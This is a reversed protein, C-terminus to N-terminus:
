LLFLLGGLLTCLFSENVVEAAIESSIEPEKEVLVPEPAKDLHRAGM